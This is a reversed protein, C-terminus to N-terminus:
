SDMKTKLPLHHLFSAQYIVSVKNVNEQILNKILDKSVMGFSPVSLQFILPNLYINREKKETEYWFM